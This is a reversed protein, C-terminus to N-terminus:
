PGIFQFYKQLIAVRMQGFRFHPLISLFFPFFPNRFLSLSFSSHGLCPLLHAFPYHSFLRMIFIIQTTTCVWVTGIVHHGSFSLSLCVAGKLPMRKKKEKGKGELTGEKLQRRGVVQRWSSTAAASAAYHNQPSRRWLRPPPSSFPADSSAAAAWAQGVWGCPM